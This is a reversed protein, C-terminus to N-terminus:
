ASPWTKTASSAPICRACRGSVTVNTVLSRTITAYDEDRGEIIEKLSDRATDYRLLYIRYDYHVRTDTIEKIRAKLVNKDKRQSVYLYNWGIHGRHALSPAACNPRVSVATVSRGFTSPRRASAWRAVSRRSVPVWSLKESPM